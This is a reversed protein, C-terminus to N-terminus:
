EFVEAFEEGGVGAAVGEGSEGLWGALGVLQVSVCLDGNGPSKDEPCWGWVSRKQLIEHLVSTGDSGLRVSAFMHEVQSWVAELTEELEDVVHQGAVRGLLGFLMWMALREAPPRGAAGARDAGAGGV